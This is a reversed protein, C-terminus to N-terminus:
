VGLSLLSVGVSNITAFDGGTGITYSGSLPSGSVSFEIAGMDPTTESRISGNIDDTISGIPTGLNDLVLALPVLTSDTDFVPDISVSSSDQGYSQWESLTKNGGYYVPYAYATYFDNHDSNTFM